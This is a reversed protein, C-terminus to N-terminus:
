EKRFVVTSGMIGVVSMSEDQTDYYAYCGLEGLSVGRIEPLEGSLYYSYEEDGNEWRLKGAYVEEVGLQLRGDKRFRLKLLGDKSSWVGVPSFEIKKEVYDSSKLVTMKLLFIGLTILLVIMITFFLSKKLANVDINISQSKSDQNYYNKNSNTDQMAHVVTNQIVNPNQSLNIYAGCSKCYAQKSSVENGCVQCKM